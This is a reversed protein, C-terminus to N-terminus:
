ATTTVATYTLGTAVAMGFASQFQAETATVTLLTGSEATLTLVGNVVAATAMIGDSAGAVTIKWTGSTYQVSIAAGSASDLGTLAEVAALLGDGKAVTGTVATVAAAGPVEEAATIVSGDAEIDTTPADAVVGVSKAELTLKNDAWTPVYTKADDATYSTVFANMTTDLDTDWTITAGDIEKSDVDAQVKGTLEFSYKAKAGESGTVISIDDKGTGGISAPTEQDNDSGAM